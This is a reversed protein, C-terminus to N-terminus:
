SRVPAHSLATVDIREKTARTLQANKEVVGGLRDGFNRGHEHLAITGQGGHLKRTPKRVTRLVFMLSDRLANKENRKRM